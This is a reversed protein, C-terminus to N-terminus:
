AVAKQLLRFMALSRVFCNKIYRAALRVEDITQVQQLIAILSGLFGPAADGEWQRLQAEAAQRLTNDNNFTGKLVKFVQDPTLQQDM